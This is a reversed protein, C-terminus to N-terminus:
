CQLWLSHLDSRIGRWHTNTGRQNIAERIWTIIRKTIELSSLVGEMFSTTYQPISEACWYHITEHPSLSRKCSRQSLPLATFNPVNSNDLTNFDFYLIYSSNAMKIRIMGPFFFLTIIYRFVLEISKKSAFYLIFLLINIRSFKWCFVLRLRTIILVYRIGEIVYWCYVPLIPKM